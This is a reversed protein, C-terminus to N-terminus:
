GGGPWGASPRELQTVYFFYPGPYRSNGKGVEFYVQEGERAEFPAPDSKYTLMKKWYLGLTHPGPAVDLEAVDNSRLKAAEEDDLLLAYTVGAGMYLRAWNAPKRWVM